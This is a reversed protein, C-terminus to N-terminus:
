MHKERVETSQGFAAPVVAQFSEGLRPPRWTHTKKKEPPPAGAAQSPQVGAAGDAAALAPAGGTGLGSSVAQETPAAAEALGAVTSSSGTPGVVAEAAPVAAAEPGDEKAARASM